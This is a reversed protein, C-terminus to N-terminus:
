FDLEFIIPLHDSYNKTDPRGNRRVLSQTDVTTLIKLQNPDFREALEPRILVQDFVNWYYSVHESGAYFYSGATHSRRDGFHCWVPNYFFRYERGHVTRTARSAIQRSMVANLGGAGVLGPEFPNMNFDGLLVTRRHGAQDEQVAINQALNSCEFQQSATSWHLKGPFHAVALLVESRAPLALRRISVRGSDFRPQLFDGSFRTFILLQESLSQPLDFGGTGDKNLTLLVKGPEIACEALVIVDARHIDALTAVAGVLPKRNINWFLFRTTPV